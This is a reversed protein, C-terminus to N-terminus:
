MILEAAEASDALTQRQPPGLEDELVSRAILLGERRVHDLWELDPDYDRETPM